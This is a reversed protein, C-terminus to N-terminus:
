TALSYTYVLTKSTFHKSQLLQTFLTCDVYLFQWLLLHELGMAFHVFNMRQVWVCLLQEILNADYQQLCNLFLSRDWQKM